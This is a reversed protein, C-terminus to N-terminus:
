SINLVWKIFHHQSWTFENAMINIQCNKSCCWNRLRQLKPFTLIESTMSLIKLRMKGKKESKRLPFPPWWLPRNTWRSPKIWRLSIKFSFCYHAETSQHSSPRAGLTRTVLDVLYILLQNTRNTIKKPWWFNPFFCPKILKIKSLKGRFNTIKRLRQSSYCTQKNCSIHIQYSILFCESKEDAWFKATLSTRTLCAHDWIRPSEEPPM